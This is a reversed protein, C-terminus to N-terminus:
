QPASELFCCPTPPSHPPLMTISARLSGNGSHGGPEAQLSGGLPVAPFVRPEAVALPPLQPSMWWEQGWIQPKIDLMECRSPARLGSVGRHSLSSAQPPLFVTIAWGSVALGGEGPLPCLASPVALAVSSATVWAPGLELGACPGATLPSGSGPEGAGLETGKPYTAPAWRLRLKRTSVHLGRWGVGGPATTLGLRSASFSCPLCISYLASAGHIVTCPQQSGMDRTM